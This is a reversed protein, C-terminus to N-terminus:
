GVLTAAAFQEMGSDCNLCRLGLTINAMVESDPRLSPNEDIMWMVNDLFISNAGRTNAYRPDSLFATKDLETFWAKVATINASFSSDGEKNKTRVAELEFRLNNEATSLVTSLMEVFTCGLSFIDASFGRTEQQVVEPAAYTRTFPTRSDTEADQPSSYSRAIGFDAIYVKFMDMRDRVPTDIQRVLINKPKIDMHKTNMCHIYSVANALCGFFTRLALTRTRHEYSWEFDGIDIMHYVTDDMFEELNWEAVPYMLINLEQGMIYTGVVRILHFHRLRQLHRVESIADYSSLRRNCRIMKRALRIRRCRVSEVLATASYGIAREVTLPIADRETRDYVVHQGRGSWDLAEEANLLIGTTELHKM